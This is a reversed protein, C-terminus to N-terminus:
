GKHQLCVVIHKHVRHDKYFPQFLHGVIIQVCSPTIEVRGDDAVLVAFPINTSNEVQKTGHNDKWDSLRSFANRNVKLFPNKNYFIYLNVLHLTFISNSVITSLIAEETKMYVTVM